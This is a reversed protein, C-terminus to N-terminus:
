ALAAHAQIKTKLLRRIENITNQITETHSLAKNYFEYAM